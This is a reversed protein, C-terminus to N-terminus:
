MAKGAGSKWKELLDEDDSGSSSSGSRSRSIWAHLDESRVSCLSAPSDPIDAPSEPIDWKYNKLHFLWHWEEDCWDTFSIYCFKTSVCRLMKGQWDFCACTTEYVVRRQVKLPLAFFNFPSKWLEPKDHLALATETCVTAFTTTAGNLEKLEELVLEAVDSNLRPM